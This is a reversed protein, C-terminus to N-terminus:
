TKAAAKKKRQYLRWPSGQRTDLSPMINTFKRRVKCGKRSCTAVPEAPPEPIKFLHGQKTACPEITM